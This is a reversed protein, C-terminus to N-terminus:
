RLTNLRSIAESKGQGREGMSPNCCSSFDSLFFSFFYMEKPAYGCVTLINPFGVIILFLTSNCIVTPGRLECFEKNM